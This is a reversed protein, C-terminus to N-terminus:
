GADESAEAIGAPEPALVSIAGPLSEFVLPTQMRTLEGDISLWVRSRHSTITAHSVALSDIEPNDRWRGSLLDLGAQMRSAMEAGEAFHIEIVGEDLRPRDFGGTSLRNNTVLLAYAAVEREGQPTELKLQLIGARSFARLSSRAVAIFRGFPLSLGRFQARGRAVEAFFGLGALSHFLRGNVASLDIRSPSAGALAALAAELDTPMGLSKAFLNMTGLPLVGLTRETGAIKRIAHGVSGDGGGVVVTQPGSQAARDIAHVFENEEALVVEASHGRDAFAREVIARIEAPDRDHITGAKANLIVITDVM